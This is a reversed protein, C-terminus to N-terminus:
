TPSVVKFGSLEYIVSQEPRELDHMVTVRQGPVVSKATAPVNLFMEGQQRHGAKDEYEYAVRFKGKFSAAQEQATVVGATVFGERVLRRRQRPILVFMRFFLYMVGNWFACACLVALATVIPPRVGELEARDFPGLTFDRVEVPHNPQATLVGYDGPSVGEEKTHWEDNSRWGYTVHYTTKGKVLYTRNSVVRGSVDTAFVLWLLTFGTYAMLGLGIWAHPLIMFGLGSWWTGGLGTVNRPAPPLEVTPSPQSAALM